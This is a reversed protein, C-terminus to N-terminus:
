IYQRTYDAARMRFAKWSFTHAKVAAKEGMNYLQERNELCWSLRGALGEVDRIAMLFGEQGEKIVDPGCTNTTTIVPLGASMAELIVQAFGETLSPLVFVDSRHLSSVVDAQDLGENVQLDLDSYHAILERDIFGRGFLRVAIHSSGALRVAEFLYSLGKRQVMSGVFAITLKRNAPMSNRAPYLAPDIGYSNVFVKQHDIGNEVLTRKTYESAVMIGTAMASEEALKHLYNEPYQMENEYMISNRAQPVLELEERLLKQITYPHPHLQFLLRQMDPEEKMAAHFAQFAYYSYLFLHARSRKAKHYATKSIHRDKEINLHFSHGFKMRFASLMAPFSQSVASSTLGPCYRKGIKDPWHRFLLDPAYFDTVLEELLGAEFLALSLQYQDRAGAHATVFRRRM